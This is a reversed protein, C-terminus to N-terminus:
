MGKGGGGLSRNRKNGGLVWQEQEKGTTLACSSDPVPLSCNQPTPSLHARMGLGQQEETGLGQHSVAPGVLAM